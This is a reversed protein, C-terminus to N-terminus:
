VETWKELPFKWKSPSPPVFFFLYLSVFRVLRLLVTYVVLEQFRRTKEDMDLGSLFSTVKWASPTITPVPPSSLAQRQECGYFEFNTNTTRTDLLGSFTCIFHKKKRKKKVHCMLYNFCSCVFSQSEWVLWSVTGLARLGLADYYFYFIFSSPSPPPTFLMEEFLCAM